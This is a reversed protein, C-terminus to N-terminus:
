WNETLQKPVKFQYLYEKKSFIAASYAKSTFCYFNDNIKMQKSELWIKSSIAENLKWTLQVFWNKDLILFKKSELIKGNPREFKPHPAQNGKWLPCDKTLNLSFLVSLKETELGSCLRCLKLLRYFFNLM